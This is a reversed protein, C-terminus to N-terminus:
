RRWGRSGASTDASSPAVSVIALGFGAGIALQVLLMPGSLRSRLGAALEFILLVVITTGLGAADVAGSTGVVLAALVMALIPLSAGRFVAWEHLAVEWFKAFGIPAGEAFRRGLFTSYAHAVWYLLLVVTVALVERWPAFAHASETAIVAGVTILGYVASDPNHDPDM